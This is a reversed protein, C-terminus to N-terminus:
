AALSATPFVSSPLFYGIDISFFLCYKTFFIPQQNRIRSEASASYQEISQKNEVESGTESKGLDFLHLQLIEVPKASSM